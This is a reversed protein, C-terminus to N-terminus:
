CSTRWAGIAIMQMHRGKLKRQLPNHQSTIVVDDAINEGAHIDHVSHFKDERFGKEEYDGNSGTYAAPPEQPYSSM